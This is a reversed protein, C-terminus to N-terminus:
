GYEACLYPVDVGAPHIGFGRYIGGCLVRHPWRQGKQISEQTVKFEYCHFYGGREVLFVVPM